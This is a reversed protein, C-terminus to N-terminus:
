QPFLSIDKLLYKLIHQKSMEGFVLKDDFYKSLWMLTKMKGEKTSPKVNFESEESILYDCITNANADSRNALNYLANRSYNKSCNSTISNIKINIDNELEEDIPNGKDGTLAIDIKTEPLKNVSVSKKAGKSKNNQYLVRLYARPTPNSGM